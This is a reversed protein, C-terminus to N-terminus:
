VIPTEEKGELAAIKAELEAVKQFLWAITKATNEEEPTDEGEGEGTDPTTPEEEEVEPIIYEFTATDLVDSKAFDDAEVFAASKLGFVSVEEENFKITGNETGTTLTYTPLASREITLVGKNQIVASVYKGDQAEDELSPLAVRTVTIKGDAQVVQSVYSGDVAKDELKLAAIQNTRTEVEKSLQVQLKSFATNITDTEVLLGADTGKNNYGTIELTGVNARTETFKGETQDLSLQTVVNGTGNTLSPKPLTITYEELTKVHGAQDIDTHVVLFNEGFKPSKDATQGKKVSADGAAAHYMTVQKGNAVLTLWRNGTDITATDVQTTATLTGGSAATGVGTASAGSNAITLNKFGDPLTYTRKTSGTLHGARDWLLEQVTFTQSNDLDTAATGETFAKVYHSFTFRDNSASGDICIWQNGEAFTMEDTMTDPTVTSVTGTTKDANNTTNLVSKFSTFGFPLTLTHTRAGRIHGAEDFKFAPIEFSNNAGEITENALLGYETNAAGDDFATVEHAIKITDTDITGKAGTGSVALHIWKNGPTLTVSDNMNDATITGAAYTMNAVGTSEATVTFKKFVEPLTVTHTRAETIHGAEDFKFCPVEFTNDKDLDGLINTSKTHDENQTLGYFFNAKTSNLLPSLEHGVKITKTTATDFRIWKNTAVYSYTDQTNTAVPTNAVATLPATVADSNTANFFKFGFPLTVTETNKGVVHGKTDVIPTYLYLKDAGNIHNLGPMDKLIGGNKDSETTTDDAKTFEHRLRILPNDSDGNVDFFIWRDEAAPLDTGGNTGHNYTTYEQSTTHPSSHVRGYNDVIMIERPVMEDFKAIIDHLKNISGQVTSEDRTLDHDTELRKNLELILGHITNLKRAFEPLEKLEYKVERTGLEITQPIIGVANNWVSGITFLARDDKMIYFDKFLWYERGATPTAAGDMVFTRGNDETYSFYNPKYFQVVATEEPAEVYYVRDKTYKESTDILFDKGLQYYFKNPEYFPDLETITLTYYEKDYEAEKARIWEVIGLVQDVKPLYYKDDRVDYLTVPYATYNQFDVKYYQRGETITPSSDQTYRKEGTEYTGDEYFYMNPTYLKLGSSEIEITTYVRGKMPSSNLDLYYVNDVGYFYTNNKYELVTLPYEVVPNAYYTVGDQFNDNTELYYTGNLDKLFFKSKEYKTLEGIKGYVADALKKAVYKADPDFVGKTDPTVDDKTLAGSAKTTTYFIAPEYTDETLTIAEYKYTIENYTYNTWKRFFGWETRENGLADKVKRLNTFYIRNADANEIQEQTLDGQHTIIMGMLDHVSNICGALTEVRSPLYEYGDGEEDTRVLRLGRVDNWNINMNRTTNGEKDTANENQERTGYVIDWMKAVSDGISPLMVSLEQIDEQVIENGTGDHANYKHGSQGTPSIKIADQGDWKLAKDTLKFVEQDTSYFHRSPDFGAKNFYVAGALTNTATTNWKNDKESFYWAKEVNTNPDYEHRVWATDLDSPFQMTQTSYSIKDKEVVTEETGNTNLPNGKLPNASKIRLGWQPQWHLRYYVNTSDMDFHPTIPVMTPADAGIDFTPVVSNLEAIMVYTEIGSSNDANPIYVKQWVTSDFGRSDGYSNTDINYNRIYNDASMSVQKITAYGNITGSCIYYETRKTTAGDGPEVRVIEGVKVTTDDSVTGIRIRTAAELNPSSYIGAPENDVAKFVRKYYDKHTDTDYEVLVYRGAYVGDIDKNNMMEYKNAYIRDFQFQTKSTNTINGYFGM